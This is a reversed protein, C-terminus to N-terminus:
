TEREYYFALIDREDIARSSQVMLGGEEGSRLATAAVKNRQLSVIRGKGVVEGQRVIDFQADAPVIGDKARGGIIRGAPTNAFVKLVLLKGHDERAIKKPALKQLEERIWDIAEYIVEFSRVSVHFREAIDLIPGRMRVHFGVVFPIKAASVNKIENETVEGVGGEFFKVPLGEPVIARLEETLAEYSGAVDAKVLIGIDAPTVDRAAPRELAARAVELEDKSSFSVAESGIEPVADFGVIRAPSSPGASEIPKGFGDELIRVPAAASGALVFDGKKIQGDRVIIMAAPGRRPDLHSEIVIGRLPLTADGRLEELDTLLFITELLDDVGKGEKASVPVCPVSGGWGEVLVGIEALSAKARDIDATAKDIKNLAVIFPINAKKVAELAEKTQPKVGDDAAVVLVAVDAVRAGRVRMKSFIEHGPTDLFTVRKDHWVIESAGLHQTIGGSEKAVINTKRIYDLLTTKGHDIHGLIVVIPHRSIPAKNDTQHSM